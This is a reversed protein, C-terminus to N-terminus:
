PVHVPSWCTRLDLDCITLMKMDDSDLEFDFIDINQKIREPTVSKPIVVLDKQICWRLMIQAYTKDHKKAIAAITENDMDRAHALPSYAEVQIDNEKCYELLEPQQLFVHLEVQNIVPQISAYKKLEKLHRITYNSVGISKAKGSEHIKEVAKWAQERVLPVPFHLLLLDVYETQLDELSKAFSEPTRHTGFNQVAIKTTIFIDKRDIESRRWIDGLFAENGYAQATDFHRYGAHYATTFAIDFEYQQKVQWCGLGLQPISHEGIKRSPINVV